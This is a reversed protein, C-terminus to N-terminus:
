REAPRVPDVMINDWYSYTTLTEFAKGPGATQARMEGVEAFAFQDRQNQPTTSFVSRLREAEPFPVSRFFLTDVLTYMSTNVGIGLALTLLVVATFGPAKALSRFAHRLDSLM